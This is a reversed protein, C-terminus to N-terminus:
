RRASSDLDKWAPVILYLLEKVIESEFPFHRRCMRGSMVSNVLQSLIVKVQAMSM